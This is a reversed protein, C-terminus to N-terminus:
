GVAVLAIGAFVLGIGAWQVRRPREGFLVVGAAITVMPGLSSALAVLWAPAIQLGYAFAVFGISEFTGGVVLIRYPHASLSRSIRAGRGDAAAAAIDIVPEPEPALPPLDEQRAGRWRIVALMAVLVLVNTPRQAVAASLWGVERIATTLVVTSVSWAVLAALAFPVGPGTFRPRSEGPAVTVAVLAIGLTAAVVGTAQAPGLSEGLFVVALLAGLGGYVAVTPSAVSVPGLRLATYFCAFGFASIAGAAMSAALVAPESPPAVGQVAALAVIICCSTGVIGLASVVGGVRRGAFAVLVDQSGWVVAALLGLILGTEDGM